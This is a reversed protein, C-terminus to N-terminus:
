VKGRLSAARKADAERLESTSGVRDTSKSQAWQVLDNREYAVRRGFRSFLPGGGTVALKALTAYATPYGLNTLLESAKRRSVRPSETNSM